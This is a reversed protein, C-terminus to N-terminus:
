DYFFIIIILSNKSNQERGETRLNEERAIQELKEFHGGNIYTRILKLEMYSVVEMFLLCVM